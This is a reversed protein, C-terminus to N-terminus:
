KSHVGRIRGQPRQRELALPDKTDFSGINGAEDRAEVRLYVRDPVGNDLRWAYGGSNDLGAAIPTWPGTPRDSYFLSIPRRELLEDAAQWRIVIDGLERGVDASTIKAVPPTLDVATWIEPADGPRPPLGGLGNGSQVVIRFGYVGEGEVTVSIPSRNDNDVAYSAWNRGGDRTGWLEVRAIGSTGIADVEYELEFTRTSVMSPREGPPIQSLDFRGAPERPGTSRSIPLAPTGTTQRQPGSSRWDPNIPKAAASANSNPQANSSAVGTTPDAPSTM